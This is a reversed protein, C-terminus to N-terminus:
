SASLDQRRLGTWTECLIISNAPNQPDYRVGVGGIISWRNEPLHEGLASVDQTATYNIGRVNYVYAISSDQVEVIEGGSLKGYQSLWQRRRAEFQEPTVKKKRNSRVMAIVGAAVLLGAITAGVIQATPSDPLELPM